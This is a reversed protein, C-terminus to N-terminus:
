APRIESVVAAFAAITDLEVDSSGRKLFGAELDKFDILLAEASVAGSVVLRGILKLNLARLAHIERQMRMLHEGIAPTM